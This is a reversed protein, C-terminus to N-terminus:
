AELRDAVFPAPGRLTAPDAEVEAADRRSLQRYLWAAIM